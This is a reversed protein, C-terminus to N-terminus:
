RLRDTWVARCFNSPFKKARSIRVEVLHADYRQPIECNVSRSLARIQRNMLEGPPDVGSLRDVLKPIAARPAIVGVYIIDNLAAHGREIVIPRHIVDK